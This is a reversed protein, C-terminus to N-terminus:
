LFIQAFQCLGPYLPEIRIPVRKITVPPGPSDAQGGIGKIPFPIPYGRSLRFFVHGAIGRLSSGDLCGAVERNSVNEQYGYPIRNPHIIFFVTRSRVLSNNNNSAGIFAAAVNLPYIGIGPKQINLRLVGNFCNGFFDVFRSQNLVNDPHNGM